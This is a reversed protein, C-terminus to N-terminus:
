GDTEGAHAVADGVIHAVHQDALSYLRQKGEAASTVLRAKKLIALQHSVASQEADLQTVLEGVSLHQHESLLILIRLRTSHALASFLDM